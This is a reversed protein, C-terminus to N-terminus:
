PQFKICWNHSPGCSSGYVSSAHSEWLSVHKLKSATVVLSADFTTCCAMGFQLVCHLVYAGSACHIRVVDLGETGCQVCCCWRRDKNRWWDVIPPMINHWMMVSLLIVLGICLECISFAQSWELTATKSCSRSRSRFFGSNTEVRSWCSCPSTKCQSFFGATYCDETVPTM